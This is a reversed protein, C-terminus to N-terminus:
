QQGGGNYQQQQQGGSHQSNGQGHGQYGPIPNKGKYNPSVGAWRQHGGHGQGSGQGGRNGTGGNHGRDGGSPPARDGGHAVMVQSAEELQESADAVEVRQLRACADAFSVPSEGNKLIAAELRFKKSVGDLFQFALDQDDVPRGIAALDDAIGQLKSAYTAIPLDGRPCNQFAKSLYMYRSLDNAAFLKQLRMWTTGARGDAGVVLRHLDDSLTALFWLSLHIDVALWDDDPDALADGEMVHDMAKYMRLLLLIVQRWKSFNKGSGDVQIKIHDIIHVNLIALNSSPATSRPPPQPHFSLQSPLSNSLAQLNLPDLSLPDQQIPTPPARPRGSFTPMPTHPDNDLNAAM